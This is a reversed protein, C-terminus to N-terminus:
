RPSRPLPVPRLGSRRLELRRLAFYAVVTIGTGVFGSIDAPQGGFLRQAVPSVWGFQGPPPPENFFLVTAATGIAFALLMPWRVGRRFWYGRQATIQDADLRAPRVLSDLIVVVGWAPFWVYTLTLFNVYNAQFGNGAFLVLAAILGGIAGVTLAAAWRRMRLGIALACLAASYVNLYNSSLEAVIIFAAFVAAFWVPVLHVILTTLLLHPDATQIAAGLIGCAVLSASSGGGSALAIRLGSSAEPLYRSYDAAYTVWSVILAFTLTFGLALTALHPGPALSTALGLHMHGATFGVLALCIAIFLPVQVTQFVAITRHGFVAVVFSIVTIAGLLAGAVWGPTASVGPLARTTTVAIACDYAFWGVAILLTLAGGISAGRLGFVRRSQVIQPAGSRAGTVSLLGLFTAGAAAGLGLVLVADLFGLGSSILLAGAFLSFFDSLAGAWIFFLERPRGHRAERPVPELGRLEIRLFADDAPAETASPTVATM